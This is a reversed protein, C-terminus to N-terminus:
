KHNKEEIEIKRKYNTTNKEWMLYLKYNIIQLKNIIKKQNAGM